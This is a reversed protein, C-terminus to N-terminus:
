WLREATQGPVMSTVLFYRNDYRAHYIVTPLAFTRGPLLTRLKEITVHEDASDCHITHHMKIFVDGISYACKTALQALDEEGEAEISIGGGAALHVLIPDDEPKWPRSRPPPVPADLIAYHARDSATWTRILGPTASPWTQDSRRQPPLTRRPRRHAM